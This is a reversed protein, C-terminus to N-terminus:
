FPGSSKAAEGAWHDIEEGTLVFETADDRRIAWVNEPGWNIGVSLDQTFEDACVFVPVGRVIAATHWKAEFAKDVAEQCGELDKSHLFSWFGRINAEVLGRVSEPTDPSWKMLKVFDDVVEAKEITTQSM